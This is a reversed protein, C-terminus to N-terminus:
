MPLKVFETPPLNNQRWCFKKTKKGAKGQAALTTGGKGFFLVTKLNKENKVLKARKKTQNTFNGNQLGFLMSM